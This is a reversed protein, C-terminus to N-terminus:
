EKDEPNGSRVCRFGIKPARSDEPRFNRSAARLFYPDDAYSGGRVVRLRDQHPEENVPNTKTPKQYFRADYVDRVWEAANGTLNYVGHSSKGPEFFGVPATGSFGDDADSSFGPRDCNRDCFNALRGTVPGKGWPYDRDEGSRAAYEWQAESPLQKNAWQCYRNAETWTVGTVPHNQEPPGEFGAQVVLDLDQSVQDSQDLFKRYEDLFKRYEAVTVEYKDIYFADLTVTHQPQERVAWTPQSHHALRLAYKAEQETSGMEFKGGPLLVMEPESIQLKDLRTSNAIYYVIGASALGALTLGTIWSRRSRWRKLRQGFVPAHTAKSDTLREVAEVIKDFGPHSPDGTWDLLKATQTQRFGLPPQVEEICAPILIGRGNAVGAEDRVYQSALAQKSWLVIVCQAAGLEKEIVHSFESGAPIRKDWWVSWGMSKIAAALTQAVLEDERAYSIFVDSM